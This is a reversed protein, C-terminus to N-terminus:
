GSYLGHFASFWLPRHLKTLSVAEEQWEAELFALVAGGKGVPIHISGMGLRYAAAKM